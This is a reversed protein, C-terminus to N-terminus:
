LVICYLVIVKLTACCVHACFVFVFCYVFNSCQVYFHIDMEETYNQFVSYTLTNYSSNNNFCHFYKM